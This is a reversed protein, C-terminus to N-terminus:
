GPYRGTGYTREIHSSLDIRTVTQDDSNLAWVAGASVALSSPNGGVPFSAQLHGSAPSILAVSDSSVTALAASGSGGGLLKLAAVVAAAVLLVGALALLPGVRRSSAASPMRAALAM